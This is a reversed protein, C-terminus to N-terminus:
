KFPRRSAARRMGAYVLTAGVAAGAVDVVWDLPDADRGPVFVQHIEDSLGYVAAVGVAAALLAPTRARVAFALTAGLVAYEIFHAWYGFRGPVDSGPVSSAAFILTMWAIAPVWRMVGTARNM